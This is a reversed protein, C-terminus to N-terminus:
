AKESIEIIQEDRQMVADADKLTAAVQYGAMLYPAIAWDQVLLHHIGHEPSRHCVNCLVILNRESDVIRELSARDTVDPWLKRIKVLDVADLLSREIPYHHSEMDTAGFPNADSDSLTSKRVGCVQCPSDLENILHHHAALYIPTEERPPHPPTLEVSAVGEKTEHVRTLTKHQGEKHPTQTM